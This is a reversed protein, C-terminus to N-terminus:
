RRNLYTSQAIKKHFFSVQREEYQHDFPEFSHFSVTSCVGHVGPIGTGCSRGTCVGCDDVNTVGLALYCGWGTCKLHRTTRVSDEKTQEEFAM